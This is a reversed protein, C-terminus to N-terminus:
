LDSDDDALLLDIHSKLREKDAQYFPIPIELWARRGGALRVPIRDINVDVGPAPLNSESISTKDQPLFNKSEAGRDPVERLVDEDSVEGGEIEDLIEASAVRDSQRSLWGYYDSFEISKKFVNVCSEASAPIFGRQILDYKINADSPLRDRYQELLSAFLAPKKLFHVLLDQKHREDPTFLYDEVEKTVRLFGDKPREVMGWYGLSAVAQLAAGNKGSYGIHKMAVELPAPHRGEAKYMKEVRGIAEDLLLSPSRPSVKRKISEAM